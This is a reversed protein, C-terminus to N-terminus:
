QDKNACQPSDLIMPNRNFELNDFAHISLAHIENMTSGLVSYVSRHREILSMDIFKDSM